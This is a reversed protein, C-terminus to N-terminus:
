EEQLNWFGEGDQESRIWTGVSTIQDSFECWGCDIALWHLDKLEDENHIVIKDCSQYYNDDYIFYPSIHYEFYENKIKQYLQIDKLHRHEASAEYSLCEEESDFIKGDFSEYLVKM